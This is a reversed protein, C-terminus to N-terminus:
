KNLSFKTGVATVDDKKARPHEGKISRLTAQKQVEQVGKQIDDHLLLIGLIEDENLNDTVGDGFTLVTDGDEVDHTSVSPQFEVGYIKKLGASVGVAQTIVNRVDGLRIQTGPRQILRTEYPRLQPHEQIIQILKSKEVVRDEASADNPIVEGNIDTAKIDALTQALSDDKSLKELQGGRLRYTSSDGIQGITLKHKGDPGKYLKSISATCGIGGKIEELKDRHEENTEDFKVNFRNRFHEIAKEHIVPSEKGIKAIASDMQKIIAGMAAEAEATELVEDRGSEFVKKVLPDANELGKRTLQISAEHSARDGAPMGGMGDFVAQVGRAPSQFFADENRDPHDPSAETAAGVVLRSEGEKSEVSRMEATTPEEILELGIDEASLEPIEQIEELDAETLEMEEAAGTQRRLSEINIIKTEEGPLDELPAKIDYRTKERPLEEPEPEPM